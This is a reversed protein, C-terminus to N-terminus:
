NDGKEKFRDIFERIEDKNIKGQCYDYHISQIEKINDKEITFDLRAM